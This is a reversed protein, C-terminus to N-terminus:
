REGGGRSADPEDGPPPPEVGTLRSSPWAIDLGPVHHGRLYKAVFPCLPVVTEGRSAVDAMAASILRSGLGQGAYAPDVQTHPFVLRGRRDPQFRTFGADRGDVRIVYQGETDERVVQITPDDESM